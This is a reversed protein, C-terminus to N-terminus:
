HGRTAEDIVGTAVERLTRGERQSTRSLQALAQDPGLGARAMLIGKAQETLAQADMAQRMREALAATEGHLAAAALAVAAYGAFAQAVEVTHEDFAPGSTRHLNLAGTTRRPLPMGASLTARVGLHRALESFTPYSADTSTDTVLVTSGSSAADLCPGTGTDYQREDLAVATPGTSAATRARGGDVVTVSVVDVSPICALALDAVQRLVLDLPQHDVVIRGLRTFADQLQYPGSTPPGGRRASDRAGNPAGDSGGRSRRPRPQPRPQTRSGAM